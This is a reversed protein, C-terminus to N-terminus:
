PISSDPSPAPQATAQWWELWREGNDGFDQGTIRWLAEAAKTRVQKADTRIAEILPRIADDNGIRGLADAASERVQRDFSETLQWLISATARPDGILALAEIVSERFAPSATGELARILYPTARRDGIRALADAASRRLAPKREELAALLPDLGHVDGVLRAVAPAFCSAFVEPLPADSPLPFDSSGIRAPPPQIGSFHLQYAASGETQLSITGNLTAGAFQMTTATSSSVIGRRNPMAYANGLASGEAQIRLTGDAEEADVVDIDVCELIEQAAKEFPLSYGDMSRAAPVPTYSQEVVVNLTTLGRLLEFSEEVRRRVGDALQGSPYRGLFAQYAQITDAETAEQWQQRHM